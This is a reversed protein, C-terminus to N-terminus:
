IEGGSSKRDAKIFESLEKWMEEAKRFDAINEDENEFMRIVRQFPYEDERLKVGIPAIYDYRWLQRIPKPYYYRTLDCDEDAQRKAVAVQSKKREVM